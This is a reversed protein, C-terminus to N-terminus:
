KEPSQIDIVHLATTGHLNWFKEEYRVEIEIEFYVIKRKQHCKDIVEQNVSQISSPFM